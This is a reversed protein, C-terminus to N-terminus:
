KWMLHGSLAAYVAALAMMLAIIRGWYKDLTGKEAETNSRSERLSDIQDEVRKIERRLENKLEDHVKEFRPWINNHDDLRKETGNFAIIVADHEMRHIEAHDHQWQRLEGIERETTEEMM